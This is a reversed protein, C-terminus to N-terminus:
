KIEMPPLEALYTEESIFEPVLNQEALMATITEMSMGEYVVLSNNVRAFLKMESEKRQNPVQVAASGCFLGCLSEHLLHDYWIPESAM